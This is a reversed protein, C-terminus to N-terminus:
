SKFVTKEFGLKIDEYLGYTELLNESKTKYSSLDLGEKMEKISLKLNFGTDRSINREMERLLDNLNEPEVDNKDIMFGDFCLARINISRSEATQIMSSLIQHEHELFVYNIATGEVNYGQNKLRRSSALFHKYKDIALIQKRIRNMEDEYEYIWNLEEPLQERIVGGNLLSLIMRKASDRDVKLHDQISKLCAERNTNYFKIVDHLIGYRVCLQALIQPHCNDIDIDICFDRAITHRVVRSIGQLSARKSFLRGAKRRTSFGYEVEGGNLTARLYKEMITKAQELSMQEYNKKFDVFRGAVKGLVDWNDLIIRIARSDVKEMCTYKDLVKIEQEM